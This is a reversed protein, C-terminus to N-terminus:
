GVLVKLHFARENGGHKGGNGQGSGDGARGGGFGGRGGRQRLGGLAAARDGHGAELRRGLVVALGDQCGGARRGLGRVLLAVLALWGAGLLCQASGRMVGICGGGVSNM